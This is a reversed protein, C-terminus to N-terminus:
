GGGPNATVTSAVRLRGGAPLVIKGALGVARFARRLAESDDTAYDLKAAHVDRALPVATLALLAVACFGTLRVSFRPLAKAGHGLPPRSTALRIRPFILIRM